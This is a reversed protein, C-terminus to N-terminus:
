IRVYAAHIAIPAYTLQPMFSLWTTASADSCMAECAINAHYSRVTASDTFSLLWLGCFRFSKCLFSRRAGM